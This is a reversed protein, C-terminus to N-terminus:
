YGTFCVLIDRSLINSKAICSETRLLDLSFVRDHEHARLALGLVMRGTDPKLEM